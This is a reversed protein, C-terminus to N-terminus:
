AAPRALSRYLGWRNRVVNGAAVVGDSVTVLGSLHIVVPQGIEPSVDQAFDNALRGTQVAHFAVKGDGSLLDLVEMRADDVITSRIGTVISDDLQVKADAIFAGSHLWDVV